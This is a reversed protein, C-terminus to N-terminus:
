GSFERDIRNERHETWSRLTREVRQIEHLTAKVDCVRAKLVAARKEGLGYARALALLDLTDMAADARRQLDESIEAARRRTSEVRAVKQMEERSPRLASGAFGLNALARGIASTETNELCASANITGDSEHESALGTAAPHRDEATRYVAARVVVRKERWSILRTVIRGRPFAKYFHEIRQAVPSYREPDCSDDTKPM